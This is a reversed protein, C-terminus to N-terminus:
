AGQALSYLEGAASTATKKVTQPRPITGVIVEGTNPEFKLSCTAACDKCLWFFLARRDPRSESVTNPLGSAVARSHRIDFRYLRGGRFYQFPKKCAPNACTSIM